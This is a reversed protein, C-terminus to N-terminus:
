KQKRKKVAKEESDNVSTSDQSLRNITDDSVNFEQVVQNLKSSIQNITQKSLKNCMIRFYGPILVGYAAAPCILLGHSVLSESLNYEDLALNVSRKLLFSLDIDAYHGSEHIILSIGNKALSDKLQIYSHAQEKGFPPSLCITEDDDVIYHGNFYDKATEIADKAEKLENISLSTENVPNEKRKNIRSLLFSATTAIAGSLLMGNFEAM